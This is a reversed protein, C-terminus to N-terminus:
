IKVVMFFIKMARHALKAKAEQVVMVLVAVEM